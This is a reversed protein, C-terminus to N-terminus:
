TPQPAGAKSSLYVLLFSQARALRSLFVPPLGFKSWPGYSALGGQKMAVSIKNKRAENLCFQCVVNHLTVSSIQICKHPVHDGGPWYSGGGDERTIVTKQPSFM